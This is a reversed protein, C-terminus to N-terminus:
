ILHHVFDKLPLKQYTKKHYNFFSRLQGFGAWKQSKVVQYTKHYISFTKQSQISQELLM